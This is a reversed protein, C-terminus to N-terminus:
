PKGAIRARVAIGIQNVGYDAHHLLSEHRAYATVAYRGARQDMGIEVHGITRGYVNRDWLCFTGACAGHRAQMAAGVQVYIEAASVAQALLILLLARM